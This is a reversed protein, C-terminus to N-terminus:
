AACQHNYCNIPTLLAQTTCDDYKCEKAFLGRYSSKKGRSSSANISDRYTSPVYTYTATYTRQQGSPAIVSTTPATPAHQATTAATSPTSTAPQMTQATTTNATITPRSAPRAAAQVAQQQQPAYYNYYPWTAGYGQVATAPYPQQYATTPYGGVSQVHQSHYANAQPPHYASYPYSSGSPPYYSMATLKHSNSCSKLTGSEASLRPRCLRKDLSYRSYAILAYLLRSESMWALHTNNM